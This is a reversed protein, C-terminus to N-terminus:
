PLQYVAPPPWLGKFAKIAADIHKQGDQLTWLHHGPFLADIELGSLKRLSNRYVSLDCGPWNGVNIYGGVNIVDGCFLMKLGDLELYFCLCGPNHGPVLIAKIVVSGIRLEENDALTKSVSCCPYVEERSVASFGILDLGLKESSGHSILEAEQQSAAIKVSEEDYEDSLMNKLAACGGGHDRHAHTLLVHGIARPDLDDEKMSDLIRETEEGCGTDVLTIESGTDIAYVHCDGPNSIGFTGSGVLYVHETVKM